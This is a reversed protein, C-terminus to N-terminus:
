GSSIVGIIEYREGALTMRRGIVQPNGGFYRQWFAYALVVTKPANLLDDKISFFRGHIVTAGSLQFFNASVRMLRIQEPVAEGTLNAVDFLSYASVDQFAHSQQRWWNFETPSGTGGLGGQQFLNQFM